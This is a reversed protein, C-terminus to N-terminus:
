YLLRKRRRKEARMPESREVDGREGGKSFAERRQQRRRPLLGFSVLAGNERPFYYNLGNRGSKSGRASGRRCCYRVLTVAGKTERDGYVRTARDTRVERPQSRRVLGKGWYGVLVHMLEAGFHTNPQGGGGRAREADRLKSETHEM